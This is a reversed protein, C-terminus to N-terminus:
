NFSPPIYGPAIVLEQGIRLAADTDLGNIGAITAVTTEFRLALARLTDGPGTTWQAM